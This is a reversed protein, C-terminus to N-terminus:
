AGFTPLRNVLMQYGSTSDYQSTFTFTGKYDQNIGSVPTSASTFRGAPMDISYANGSADKLVFWLRSLTGALHKAYITQGQTASMYMGFQISANFQGDRIDAEGLVGLAMVDGLNNKITLTADSMKGAAAGGENIRVISTVANMVTSSPAALPTGTSATASGTSMGMGKFTTSAELIQGPTMKLSFQDPYCGTFDRTFSIDPHDEEV